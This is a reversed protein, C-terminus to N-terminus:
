LPRRNETFRVEVRQPVVNQGLAVKGVGLQRVRWPVRAVLQSQLQLSFAVIGTRELLEDVGDRKARVRLAAGTHVSHPQDIVVRVKVDGALVDAEFVPFAGAVGDLDGLAKAFDRYALGLEVLKRRHLLLRRPLQRRRRHLSLEARIIHAIVRLRSPAFACLTAKAIKADERSVFVEFTSSLHAMLWAMWRTMRNSITPGWVRLTPKSSSVLCRISKAGTNRPTM